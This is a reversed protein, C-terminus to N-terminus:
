PTLSPTIFFSSRGLNVHRALFIRNKGILMHTVEVERRQEFVVALSSRLPRNAVEPDLSKVSGALLLSALDSVDGSSTRRICPLDGLGAAHLAGSGRPRLGLFMLVSGAFDLLM